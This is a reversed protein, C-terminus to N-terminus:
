TLKTDANKTDIKWETKSIRLYGEVRELTVKSHKLNEPNDKLFKVFSIVPESIDKKPAEESIPMPPPAKPLHPKGAKGKGQDLFIALLIASVITLVIIVIEM